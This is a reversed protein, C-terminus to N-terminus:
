ISKIVRDLRKVVLESVVRSTYDADPFIYVHSKTIGRFINDAMRDLSPDDIFSHLLGDSSDIDYYSPYVASAKIKCKIAKLEASLVETIGIIAHRACSYAAQGPTGAIVGMISGMNVIHCDDKQDLMLPLFIRIGHVIGWLNVGLVQDFEELSTDMFTKKLALNAGNILLHVAGHTDITKKALAAIAEAKSVDTPVSLISSGSAKLISEIKSLAAQDSDAIVIKMGKELCKKAMATGLGSSVGTIVAIKDKFEKM